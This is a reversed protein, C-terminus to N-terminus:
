ELDGIYYRNLFNELNAHAEISNFIASAEQGCSKFIILGGPHEFIYPSLNYIKNNIIQSLHSRGNKFDKERFRHNFIAELGRYASIFSLAMKEKQIFNYIRYEEKSMAKLDPGSYCDIYSGILHTYFINQSHWYCALAKRYQLKSAIRRIPKNLDEIKKDETILGCCLDSEFSEKVFPDQSIGALSYLDSISCNRRPPRKMIRILDVEDSFNLDIVGLCSKIIEFLTYLGRLTNSEILLCGRDIDFIQHYICGKQHLDLLKRTRPLQVFHSKYEKAAESRSSWGGMSMTMSGIGRLPHKTQLKVIPLHTVLGFYKM